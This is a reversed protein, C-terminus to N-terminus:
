YIVRITRGFGFLAQLELMVYCNGTVGCAVALRHSDVFEYGDKALSEM